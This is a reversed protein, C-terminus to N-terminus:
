EDLRLQRPSPRLRRPHATAHGVARYVRKIEEVRILRDRIARDCPTITVRRGDVRQVQAFYTEVRSVLVVDGSRVQVEPEM